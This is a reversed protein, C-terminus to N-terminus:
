KLKYLKNEGAQFELQMLGLKLWEETGLKKNVSHNDENPVYLYYRIELDKLAKVQERPPWSWIQQIAWDDLHVLEITPHFVLHRNDHTLIKRGKHSVNIYNWMVADEGYQWLYFTGEDPLPHRFAFLDLPSEPKEGKVSVAKLVKFGMLGMALGPVLGIMLALIGFPGRWARLRWYPFAFSALVAVAPLIMIIQYLYYPALLYHYAILALTLLLAVVGFRLGFDVFKITVTKGDDTRKRIVNFPSALGRALLLLVGAFAFGDFFPEVHWQDVWFEWSRLIRTLLGNEIDSEYRAIGWGNHIWERRASEMVEPNIHIGGFLPQFFAYVPNGAVIWNRLYWTSGILFCFALTVIFVPSRLFAFLSKRTLHCTWAPPEERMENWGAFTAPMQSARAREEMREALADDELNPFRVHAAVVMAGWPLWLIGMLYNLHMGLAVLTTALIFYGSLATELYLLAVHLFGAAFLISLAYDSAYQDYAIGLPVSRYLLTIAASFNVHRTLRLMTHYVLITSALGALPAILQQPLESWKRAAITVGAGLLSYLHPYNAGLGIGVQGVVKEVIGHEYFMMRAYGLYLILSDWYSEPYLLAHYFTLLTIAGILGFAALSFLHETLARPRIISRSYQNNAMQRRMTQEVPGGEGGTWTEPRRHSAWIAFPWLIVLLFGGAVLIGTRNFHHALALAEFVFGTLGMGTLYALAASVSRPLYLELSELAFWGVLTFFAVAGVSWALMTLDVDGNGREFPKRLSAFVGFAPKAWLGQNRILFWFTFYAAILFLVGAVLNHLTAATLFSFWGQAQNAPALVVPPPKPSSSNQKDPM